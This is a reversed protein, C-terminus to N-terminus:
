RGADSDDGEADYEDHDGFDPEVNGFDVHRDIHEITVWELTPQGKGLGTFGFTAEVERGIMREAEASGMSVMDKDIGDKVSFNFTCHVRISAVLSRSVTLTEGDFNEFEFANGARGGFEWNEVVGYADDPEINMYSYADIDWDTSDVANSLEKLIQDDM